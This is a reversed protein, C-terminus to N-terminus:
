FDLYKKLKYIEKKTIYDWDWVVFNTVWKEIKRWHRWPWWRWGFIIWWWIVDAVEPSKYDTSDLTRFYYDRYWRYFYFWKYWRRMYPSLVRIRKNIQWLDQTIFYITMNRKRVQTLVLLEEYWFRKNIGFWSSPFYLHAEDILMFVRKFWKMIYKPSNTERIYYVFFKFLKELDWLSSFLIDVFDYPNNAIILIKDKYRQKLKKAELFSYFTKWAWFEWTVIRVWYFSNLKSFM